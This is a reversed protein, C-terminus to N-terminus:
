ERPRILVLGLSDILKDSIVVEDEGPTIVATAKATQPKRDETVV